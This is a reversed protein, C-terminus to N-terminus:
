SAGTGMWAQMFRVAFAGASSSSSGNPKNSKHKAQSFPNGYRPEGSSLPAMCTRMAAQTQSACQNQLGLVVERTNKNVCQGYRCDNGAGCQVNECFLSTVFPASCSECHGRDTINTAKLELFTQVNTSPRFLKPLDKSVELTTATGIALLVLIAVGGIIWNRWRRLLPALCFMFGRETRRLSSSRAMHVMHEILYEGGGSPVHVSSLRNSLGKTSGLGGATSNDPLVISPLASNLDASLDDGASGM